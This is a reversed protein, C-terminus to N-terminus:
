IGDIKSGRAHNDSSNKMVNRHFALPIRPVHACVSSVHGRGVHVMGSGRNQRTGPILISTNELTGNLLSLLPINTTLERWSVFM